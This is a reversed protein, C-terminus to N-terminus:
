EYRLAVLPDVKTARRAPLYCALFAIASLVCAVAVFTVTDTPTVGFLLNRLIRALAFASVFGIVEGILTLRMGQKLILKLVDSIEAGLAMRIGIEQTRQTVAYSLLGYIGVAALMLALAGFVTMLVMNLRQQAISNSVIKDLTNVNAIPQNPDISSVANRLAPVISVPDVTTRILMLMDALPSQIAPVYYTPEAEKNLGRSKVDRAIGVIEFSTLRENKWIRAPPGLNLHQGLASEDPFYHRVFAENVIVVGPHNEDDEVTFQRGAVIDIGVTRFYNWTVPNFNASLGAGGIPPRGAISFSDVWNVQLPHDYAVAASVVGPLASIRDLLKTYFTSVKQNNNYKSSPLTIDLSLVHEPNFGPDVHRLHWFSKVLLGSGVVLMVATAVQFVVLLQRFRQRGVGSGSSRGGQDLTTQLDPKAANWAPLLTFLLCTLVALVITFALVRLDIRADSFGPVETPNLKIVAETAFKALGLGAMTGLLSLLLGELVFQRVLRGRGAGLAARIAIEKSRGSYQALLLGAINACAVFLVLGVAALLTLLAPRVDGVVEEKFPRVIIGEGKNVPYQQELRSAITNMEAQAQDLTTNRKLRGIAGLIHASRLAAMWGSMSMPTWFQQQSEEFTIRGTTTPWAPYIGPPMIGVVTYPVDNLRITRNIIQPDGAFRRQWLAHGLVIVQGKGEEYEEPFFFRGREPEVGVVTFYGNSVRAGLLQEPEGNGTFTLTSAGFASMDEFVTNQKKWDLFNAPTVRWRGQQPVNAWLSVLRDPNKYPLRRLMVANVISFVATNAGIGLALTIVAVATFAPRKKFGRIAFRIDKLLTEM